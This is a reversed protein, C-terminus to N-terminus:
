REKPSPRAPFHRSETLIFMCIQAVHTGTTIHVLYDERDTDFPYTRAFQHLASYVQEFDWPDDVDFPRLVTETEPTDNWCLVLTDGKLSYVARILRTDGKKLDIAKPQVGVALAM